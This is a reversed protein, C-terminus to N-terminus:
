RAAITLAVSLSALVTTLGLLMRPDVAWWNHRGRHPDIFLGYPPHAVHPLTRLRVQRQIM